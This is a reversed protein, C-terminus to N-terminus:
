LLPVQRGYACSKCGCQGCVYQTKERAMTQKGLGARGCPNPVALPGQAEGRVFQRLAEDQPDELAQSSGHWVIQGGHLLAVRNAIRAASAMDHTVTIASAGLRNMSSLILDDIIRTM